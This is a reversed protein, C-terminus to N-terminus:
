NGTTTEDPTSEEYPVVEADPDLMAREIIFTLTTERTKGSDYHVTASSPITELETHPSETPDYRGPTYYNELESSNPADSTTPRSQSSM